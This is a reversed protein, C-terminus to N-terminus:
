SAQAAHLRAYIGGCRILEDHTGQEAVGNSDLVVIVDAHRITSLRHAIILTTRTKSLKDLAAQIEKETQTDLSSTAEDLLLIPSNRLVARAISIRQKQGGSLRIGREGILTDYSNELELIFEHANAAKAAALVQEYSAEKCGYVINEYITGNFLFTDQLVMSISDRLSRLTVERIDVGDILISGSVPDYFRNLLSSITTKGVGTTGVLAVTQGPEITLNINHLVPIGPTYHFTLNVFKVAGKVKKLIKANPAEQVESVEDLVEFVRECGALANNLNENISSLNNIPVYFLGLYLTFGVIEAVTMEGVSTLYGGYVMVGVMGLSSFFTILPIVLEDTKVAALITRAEKQIFGKIREKEHDHQNFVQIEKIGSVNDQLAGSMIGMIESNKRWRPLAAKSYLINAFIIFPITLLSIVALKVNIAFLMIGVALLTLANVILDPIVHAILREASVTDKAIRSVLQGSQKDTFYRLSLNQLKDYLALRLDAVYRYAGLHTFYGKIFSCVGRVVYTTLLILGMHLSKQALEPDQSTILETLKQMAWPAYLSAATSVLVALVGILTYQWYCLSDRLVRLIIKM